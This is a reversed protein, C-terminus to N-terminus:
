RSEPKGRKVGGGKIKDHRSTNWYLSSLARGSVLPLKVDIQTLLWVILLVGIIAPLAPLYLTGRSGLEINWLLFIAIYFSLVSWVCNIKLTRAIVLWILFDGAGLAGIWEANGDVTRLLIPICLKEMYNRPFNPYIYSVALVDLIVLTIGFIALSYIDKRLLSWTTPFANLLFRALFLAGILPLFLPKFISLMLAISCDLFFLPPYVESERVALWFLCATITLQICVDVSANIHELLWALLFLLVLM